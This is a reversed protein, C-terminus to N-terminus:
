GIRLEVVSVSTPPFHLSLARGPNVEREKPDFTDQRDRDVYARPYEPAIEFVRCGHIDSGKVQIEATVDKSYQTNLVHLCVTDGKRTGAIDLDAPAEGVQIGQDGGYKKYLRMVAGIPLLFSNGSPVPIKVANVTWRTGSFDAGTCIGVRDANRLYTNMTRAHYAASLWETLITNTNYPSLSLHGETVAVKIDTKLSDLLGRLLDLRYAAISGLDLLEYWATEPDKQYEYGELVTDGKPYVGMMHIAIYDLHEGAERLMREAWFPNGEHREGKRLNGPDSVDGWGILKISPDRERMAKAFSQTHLVAEDQTFHTESYSTENGLQWHRVNLPAKAGNKQRERHDPDNCYSVWDAAEQVTGKRNEGRETNWFRKVGDSLFNVNLLPSAGVRRCFDALEHTGVRNTERGGWYYNYMWPRQAPDGVGERWKYYRIFNGGWRILGPSLDKVCQVYDERWDDGGYDWSAEITPETVGLPEMFQMYFGPDIQFLPSPDVTIKNSATRPQEARSCSSFSGGALLSAATLCTSDRLFHRRSIPKM